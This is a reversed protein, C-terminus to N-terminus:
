WRFSDPVGRMDLYEKRAKEQEEETKATKYKSYLEHRKYADMKAELGRRIEDECDNMELLHYRILAVYLDCPIQINKM